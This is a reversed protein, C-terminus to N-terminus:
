LVKRAYMTKIDKLIQVVKEQPTDPTQQPYHGHLYKYLEMGERLNKQWEDTKRIVSNVESSAQEQIYADSNAVDAFWWFPPHLGAKIIRNTHEVHEWANNKLREDLYGVGRIVGKFYYCFSGVCNPNLALRIDNPYNIELRPTKEFYNNPNRNAPGHYGYNLHWIGTEEATQIYKKFVDKNMILMDDEILFLHDCGDQILTRLAENKSLCVGQNKHHQIVTMSKDYADAPYAEGDNIVVLTDVAGLISQSCKKFFDVRDKTIIAAGIKNSM